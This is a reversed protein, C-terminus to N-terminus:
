AHGFHGQSGVDDFYESERALHETLKLLESLRAEPHTYPACTECSPDDCPQRAYLWFHIAGALLGDATDDVHEDNDTATLRNALEILHTAAEQYADERAPDVLDDTQDDRHSDNM